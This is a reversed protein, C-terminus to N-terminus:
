AQKLAKTFFSREPYLAILEHKIKHALKRLHFKELTRLVQDVYSVSQYGLHKDLHETMKKLIQGHLWDPNHDFLYQAHELLLPLTKQAELMKTLEHDMGESRYLSALLKDLANQKLHNIIVKKTSSWKDMRRLKSLMQEEADKIFCDLYLKHLISEPAGAKELIQLISMRQQRGMAKGYLQLLIEYAMKQYFHKTSVSHSAKPPGDHNLLIDFIEILDEKGHEEELILRQIAQSDGAEMHIRL